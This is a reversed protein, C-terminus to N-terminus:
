NGGGYTVAELVDIVGHGYYGNEFQGYDWPNPDDVLYDEPQYFSHLVLEQIEDKTMNPYASWVWAAVGAEHPASFSTGDLPTYHVVWRGQIDKYVYMTLIQEGPAAIGEPWIWDGHTSWKAMRNQENSATVIPGFHYAAPFTQMQNAYNGTAFVPLGGERVFCELQHELLPDPTWSGWSINTVVHTGRKLNTRIAYGWSQIAPWTYIGSGVGVRVFQLKVPDEIVGQMGIGNYCEAGAVSGVASGHNFFYDEPEPNNDWPLAFFDMGVLDDTVGNEDDDIGNEDGPDFIAWGSEDIIITKGNGNADEGLNQWCKKSFEPHSWLGGTDNIQLVVEEVGQVQPRAQIAMTYRLGTVFDYGGLPYPVQWFIYPDMAWPEIEKILPPVEIIGTQFTHHIYHPQAYYGQAQIAAVVDAVAVSRQQEDWRIEQARDLEDEEWIWMCEFNVSDVVQLEIGLQSGVQSLSNQFTEFETGVPTATLVENPVEDAWGEDGFLGNPNLLGLSLLLFVLKKM